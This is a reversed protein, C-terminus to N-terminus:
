CFESASHVGGAMRAMRYHRLKSILLQPAQWKAYGMRAARKTMRLGAGKAPSPDICSAAAAASGGFQLPGESRESSLGFKVQWAAAPWNSPHLNLFVLRLSSELCSRALPLDEEAAFDM